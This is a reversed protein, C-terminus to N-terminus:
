KINFTSDLVVECQLQEISYCTIIKKVFVACFCKKMGLVIHIREIERRREETKDIM